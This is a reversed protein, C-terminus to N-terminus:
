DAAAGIGNGRFWDNLDKYDDDGTTKAYLKELVVKEAPLVTIGSIGHSFQLYHSFISSLKSSTEHETVMINECFFRIIRAHMSTDEGVAQGLAYGCSESGLEKVIKDKLLGADVLPNIKNFLEEDQFLKALFVIFMPPFLKGIYTYKEKDSLYPILLAKTLGALFCNNEIDRSDTGMDTMSLLANEIILRRVNNIAGDDSAGIEKLTEIAKIRDSDSHNSQLLLITNILASRGGRDLSFFSLLNKQFYNSLPCLGTLIYQGSSIHADDLWVSFDGPSLRTTKKVQLKVNKEYQGYGIVESHERTAKWSFTKVELENKREPSTGSALWEGHEADTFKGFTIRLTEGDSVMNLIRTKLDGVVGKGLLEELTQANTLRAIIREFFALDPFSDLEYFKPLEQEASHSSDSFTPSAAGRESGSDSVVPSPAQSRDAPLGFLARVLGEIDQKKGNKLSITDPGDERGRASYPRVYLYRGDKLEKDAKVVFAEGPLDKMYSVVAAWDEHTKQTQMKSILLPDYYFDFFKRAPDDLPLDKVNDRAIARLAAQDFNSTKPNYLFINFLSRLSSEVCDTFQCAYIDTTEPHVIEYVVRRYELVQPFPVKFFRYGNFSLFAAELVNGVFPLTEGRAKDFDEETYAPQKKLFATIDSEVDACFVRPDLQQFYYILEEKSGVVAWLFALLIGITTNKAYHGERELLLGKNICAILGPPEVSGEKAKKGELPSKLSSKLQQTLTTLVNYVCENHAEIDSAVKSPDFIAGSVKEKFDKTKIADALASSVSSIDIPLESKEEMVKILCGIVIPVVTQKLSDGLRQDWADVLIEKYKALQGKLKQVSNLCFNSKGNVLNGLLRSDGSSPMAKTLGHARHFLMSALMSKPVNDYVLKSARNGPDERKTEIEYFFDILGQEYFIAGYLPSRYTNESKLCSGLGRIEAISVNSTVQKFFGLFLITILSINVLRKFM